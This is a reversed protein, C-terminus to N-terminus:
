RHGKVLLHQELVSWVGPRALEDRMSRLTRLFAPVAAATSMPNPRAEELVDRDPRLVVVDTDPWAEHIADLEASLATGGLRDLIGEYFRAGQRTEVSAMPAVVVILDLPEDSALLLDASTGSAIGGDVYRRGDITVPDFIMPVASSAAAALGIGCEPAEETGFAVRRRGEVEYAVIMTPKDPWGDTDEGIHERIWEVIGDTSYPAPSGVAFQLGPRRIGPLVGHRIWRGLGTPRSRQYLRKGLSHALEERGEADGVLAGLTLARSRLISGVVAGCSTGVVVDADAPDWGTAMELAFLAGFHFAAGTVGGGGLVLGVSSV